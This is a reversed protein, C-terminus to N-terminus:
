DIKSGISQAPALRANIQKLEAIDRRAIILASALADELDCFYDQEVEVLGLGGCSGCTMESVAGRIAGSGFCADCRKGKPAEIRLPRQKLKRKQM